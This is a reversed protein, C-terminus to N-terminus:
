HTAWAGSSVTYHKQEPGSAQSNSGISLELLFIYTNQFVALVMSAMRQQPKDWLLFTFLLKPL